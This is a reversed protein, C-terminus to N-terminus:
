RDSRARALYGIAVFCLAFGFAPYAITLATLVIAISVALVRPVSLGSV